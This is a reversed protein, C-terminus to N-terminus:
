DETSVWDVESGIADRVVGLAAIFQSATELTDISASKGALHRNLIEHTEALDDLPLLRRERVGQEESEQVLYLVASPRQHGKMDLLSFHLKLLHEGPSPTDETECAGIRCECRWEHGIGTEEFQSVEGPLGALVRVHRPFLEYLTTRGPLTTRLAKVAVSPATSDPLPAM